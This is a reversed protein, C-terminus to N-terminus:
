IRYLGGINGDLARPTLRLLNDSLGGSHTHAHLTPKLEPRQPLALWAKGNVQRGGDPRDVVCLEYRLLRVRIEPGEDTKEDEGRGGVGQRAKSEGQRVKSVQGLGTDSKM